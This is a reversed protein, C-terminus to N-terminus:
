GLTARSSLSLYTRTDNILYDSPHGLAMEIESLLFRIKKSSQRSPMKHFEFANSFTKDDPHLKKYEDSNKIHSARKYDGTHIKMAIQNYMKEQEGPSHHCIVNYRISLVYLYNVTKVFEKGSFQTFAAMFITLPQKINFLSLGDLYKKAEWYQEDQNSWWEDDPKLLSSYIPAYMMLSNLYAYATEPTKSLQRISVFLGKKTV